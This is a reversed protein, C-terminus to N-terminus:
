VSYQINNWRYQFCEWAWNSFSGLIKVVNKKSGMEKKQGGYRYKEDSKRRKKLKEKKGKKGKKDGRNRGKERKEKRRVERKM